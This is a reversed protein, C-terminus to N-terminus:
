FLSVEEEEVCSAVERMAEVVEEVEEEVVGKAALSANNM